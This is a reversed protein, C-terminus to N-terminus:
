RGGAARFVPDAAQLVLQRLRVPYQPREALFERVIAAAQPSAHGSLTADLWRKPFFIDGTARVEALLELAPRIYRRASDARLPHNLNSLGALVWPEHARNARQRLAEFWADRVKADASLTPRVFAFRARRDPNKIRAAQTNMISDPNGAGRLVLSNALATYDDESLRLGPVSDTQAWIARLRAVSAPTLALSRLASFYAAKRSATPASALRQWLLEEVRPALRDRAAATSYRWYTEDLYGLIRATLQEDNELPLARLALEALASATVQRELLADWLDLWAAGRLVPDKLTPLYALLWSRSTADLVLLGYARADGNPLMALPAPLGAAAAVNTVRGAVRVPMFRVTDAYILASNLPEIWVRGRQLPDSETFSLSQIRGDVKTLSVRLTPRGAEEVWVRSWARLDEPSSQDLVDIMDAFSANGYEHARLYTRMGARFNDTGVLQELQAMVIPAKQYIIAGYLQAAENLNALPQRIPHTGATRDVDYATPYHALLFRLAHNVEPFSPQVIKAAMFNAMVEKLWVDNFWQMTVLDGFWMHATEHAILSARGLKQNQTASEDLLLSSANYLIAGAHEMGGFQFSPVAVFDYKGFPYTIGTYDEMYTLSSAVLDFLAARNRAVKTTDTERHFLRLTLARAQTGTGVMRTATEIQWKGAVFGFLYTPLPKTEAFEIQTTEGIVERRVEAGNAVAQWASPIRLTLRWRAKLDPQDFVPLALSARAPVFLTYLYEDNRNLSADGARFRIRITNAGKRLASAPIIIHGNTIAAQPAVDVAFLDKRDAAFDLALPRAADTLTFRITTEGTVRESKREPVSLSLDYSLDHVRAARERALALPVGAAPSASQARLELGPLVGLLVAITVLLRM